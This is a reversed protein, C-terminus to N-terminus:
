LVPTMLSAFNELMRKHAPRRRWANAEVEVSRSQDELIIAKMRNVFGDDYVTMNTEYSLRLSRVDINASGILAYQNDIVVAKAHTFPPEREFIRVGADMLEQYLARCALGTYAHNNKAPVILRTDVGRLAAARFAHLIDLPPVFYPTIALIQKRADVISMFLADGIAGMENTPGSNVLRMLAPGAVTVHPFYIEGLLYDPSEGTMFYWDRMFTYQLECVMAGRILFHYDRIPPRQDRTVNDESLNIGGCFATTGDIVCIKRHNRLNIQFQRKLPNAQTWGSMKLHPIGRYRHFLGSLVAHTSGFRDYLLRVEVGEDAKAKLANMLTQGISDNGIIFSQLHIHHRAGRIAEFLAPYYEDGGILPEIANGGLLPHDPLISNMARNLEAAFPNEPQHRASEHVSNWYARDPMQQEITKRSKLMQQNTIEKLLGKRPVRDVGFYLYILPGVVPFSWAIFIWLVASTAERRHKLCDTLVLLFTCIHFTWGTLLWVMDAHALNM